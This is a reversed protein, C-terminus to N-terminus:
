TSFSHVQTVRAIGEKKMHHGARILTAASASMKFKCSHSHQVRIMAYHTSIMLCGVM